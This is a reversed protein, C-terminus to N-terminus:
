STPNSRTCSESAHWTLNSTVLLGLGDSGARQSCEMHCGEFREYPPPHMTYM